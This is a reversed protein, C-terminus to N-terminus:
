EKSKRTPKAAEDVSVAPAFGTATAAAEPEAPALKLYHASRMEDFEQHSIQDPSVPRDVVDLTTGEAM